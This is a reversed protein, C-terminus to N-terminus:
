FERSHGMFQSACRVTYGHKVCFLLSTVLPQVQWIFDSVVKLTLRLIGRTVPQVATDIHLAPLTRALRLVQEFCPPDILASYVRCPEGKTLPEGMYMVPTNTHINLGPLGLYSAHHNSRAYVAQDDKGTNKPAWGSHRLVSSMTRSHKFVAGDFLKAHAATCNEGNRGYSSQPVPGWGRRRGYRAVQRYRGVRGGGQRGPEDFGCGSSRWVAAVAVPVM